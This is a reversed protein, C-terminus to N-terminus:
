VDRKESRLHFLRARRRARASRGGRPADGTAASDTEIPFLTIDRPFFLDLTWDIMVRLKRELGPLKMLYITRWVFWAIFGLSGCVWSIPSPLGTASPHWSASAASPSRSRSAISWCARSIRESCLARARPLQATPPCYTHPDTPRLKTQRRCRSRSRLRRGGLAAGPRRRPSHRDCIIRGKSCDFAGAKVSGLSCRTRRTARRHLDRHPERDASGRRRDCSRGDDRHRACEAGAGRQPQAPSRRLVARAGREGGPLLHAQSHVLVCPFEDRSLRPYFHVIEEGLDNIQGATEVGSYGGGVIVFTLLRRREAPDSQLNAEEFRDIITARLKLADGVNKMLYAHEPMGPVRSLDVVGGLTLVLHRFTLPVTGTFDGAELSLHGRDLDISSITGRLVTTRCLRRLPNVVHRPSISGGVVEALMPQFVMFNQDAILAVRRRAEDGFEKTLQQACAVGAFGGGAIVVDFDLHPTSM